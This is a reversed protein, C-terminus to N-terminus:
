EDDVFILQPGLGDKNLSDIISKIFPKYGEIAQILALTDESRGYFEENALVKLFGEPTVTNLAVGKEEDIVPRLIIEIVLHYPYPPLGIEPDM